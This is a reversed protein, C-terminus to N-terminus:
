RSSVRRGIGRRVEQSPAPMVIELVGSRSREADSPVDVAGAPGVAAIRGDRVVVTQGSLTEERAMPIVTVDVFAVAVTSESSNASSADGSSLAGCTACTVVTSAMVAALALRLAHDTLKQM